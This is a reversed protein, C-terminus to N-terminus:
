KEEYGKLHKMAQGTYIRSGSKTVVIGASTRAGLLTQGDPVINLSSNSINAELNKKNDIIGYWRYPFSSVM